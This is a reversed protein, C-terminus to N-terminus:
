NDFMKKEICIVVNFIGNLFIKNDLKDNKRFHAENGSLNFLQYSIFKYENLYRFLYIIIQENDISAYNKKQSNNSYLYLFSFKSYINKINENFIQILYEQYKEPLTDFRMSQHM